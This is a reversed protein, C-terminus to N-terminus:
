KILNAIAAAARDDAGLRLSRHLEDFRSALYARNKDDSLQFEAERVVADPTADDQILEPVVFKNCLINPLGVFPLYRRGPRVMAYALRPARYVIVMPKKLLAAQLAGTGCKVIVADAARMALISDGVVARISGRGEAADAIHIEGGGGRRRNIELRLADASESNIMAALIIRNKKRACLRMASDVFLPLHSRLEAARSGPMMAIVESELPINLKRRASESDVELPIADAEPHGVCVAPINARRYIEEEFPFLCLMLDVARRIKSLRERRWMWVSPSVYHATRIGNARLRAAVGLNFDPADVGVFIKPRRLLLDRILRRRLKLISPLRLLADWYGLVALRECPFLIEAGAARMNEGGIGAIEIQPIRRILSRALGAALRDGSLEGAVIAALPPPPPDITM